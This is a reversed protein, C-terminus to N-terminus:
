KILFVGMLEEEVQPRSIIALSNGTAIVTNTEIARIHVDKSYKITFHNNVTNLNKVEVEQILNKLHETM